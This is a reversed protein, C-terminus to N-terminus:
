RNLTQGLARSRSEACYSFIMYRQCQNTISLVTNPNAGRSFVDVGEQYCEKSGDYSFLYPTWNDPKLVNNIEWKKLAWDIENYYNYMTTVHLNNNVLYPAANTNGAADFHGIIDPTNPFFQDYSKQQCPNTVAVISDYHHASMAAQCAIYAVINQNGNYRKLAEGTVVNGM